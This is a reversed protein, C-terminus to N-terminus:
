SVPEAAWHPPEGQLMTIVAIGLAWVDVAADYGAKNHQTMIEPAM